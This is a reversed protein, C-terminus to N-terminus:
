EALGLWRLVLRAAEAIRHRAPAARPTLVPLPPEGADEAALRAAEYTAPDHARATFMMHAHGVGCYEACLGRYTGPMSATLTMRNEKGPIADMKGALRPVWLSHIVDESTIRLLAPAGAPLHLVDSETGDPYTFTWQWQRAHASIELPAHPRGLLQEGRHLAFVMLATLVVLPFVLGGGILMGRESVRRGGRERKLAYLAIGMVLALILVAGTLMVWWLTAVRAAAPGAPDLTSFDGACAALLALPLTAGATRM